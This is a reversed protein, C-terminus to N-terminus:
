QTARALRQLNLNWGSGNITHGRHEGMSLALVKQFRLSGFSSDHLLNDIFRRVSAIATTTTTQPSASSMVM